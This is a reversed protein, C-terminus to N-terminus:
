LLRQDGHHTFDPSITFDTAAALLRHVQPSSGTRTTDGLAGAATSVAALSSPTSCFLRRQKQHPSYHRSLGGTIALSRRATPAQPLTSWTMGGYDVGVDIVCGQWRVPVAWYKGTVVQWNPCSEAVHSSNGISAPSQTINLRARKLSANSPIICDVNLPAPDSCSHQSRPRITSCGRVHMRSVRAGSAGRHARPVLVTAALMTGGDRARTEMDSGWVTEMETHGHTRVRVAKRVPKEYRGGYWLIIKGNDSKVLVRNFAGHAHHYLGSATVTDHEDMVLQFGECSRGMRPMGLSTELRHSKESNAHGQPSATSDQLGQLSRLVALCLHCEFYSLWLLIQRKKVRFNRYGKEETEFDVDATYRSKNATDCAFRKFRFVAGMGGQRVSVSPSVSFRLDPLTKQQPSTKLIYGRAPPFPM